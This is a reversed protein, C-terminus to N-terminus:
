KETIKGDRHMIEIYQIPIYTYKFVGLVRYM